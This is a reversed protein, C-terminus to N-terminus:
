DDPIISDVEINQINEQMQRNIAEYDITPYVSASKSVDLDKFKELMKGLSSDPSIPTYKDNM